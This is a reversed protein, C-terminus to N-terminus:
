SGGLRACITLETEGRRSTMVARRLLSVCGEDLDQPKKMRLVGGTRRQREKVRPKYEGNAKSVKTRESGLAM